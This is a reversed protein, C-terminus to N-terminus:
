LFHNYVCVFYTYRHFCFLVIFTHVISSYSINPIFSQLIAVFRGSIWFFWERAETVDPHRPDGRIIATDADIAQDAGEDEKTKYQGSQKTKHYCLGILLLVFIAFIGISGSIIAVNRAYINQAYM